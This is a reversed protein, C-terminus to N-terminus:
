GELPLWFEIDGFGTEPDFRPGYWEVLEVGGAFGRAAKRGSAPLWDHLIWSATRIMDSVHGEHAFVAWRAAPLALHRWGDPLAADPSAAAACAYEMTGERWEFCLGFAEPGAGALKGVDAGFRMWQAPIRGMTEPTYRAGFGALSLAPKEVFRPAPAGASAPPRPPPHLDDFLQRFPRVEIAGNRASPIGAALRCAEDLSAAELVYFGGLEEKTEAFPGDTVSVRGERVQVTRGARGSALAGATVFAGAKQLTHDYELHEQILADGEAKPLPRAPDDVYRLLCLFRM